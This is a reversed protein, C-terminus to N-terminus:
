SLGCMVGVGSVVSVGSVGSVGSMGSVGSVGSAHGDVGGAQARGWLAPSAETASCWAIRDWNVFAVAPPVARLLLRRVLIEYM